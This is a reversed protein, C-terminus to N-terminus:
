AVSASRQFDLGGDRRRRIFIEAAVHGARDFRASALAGGFKAEFCRRRRGRAAGCVVCFSYNRIDADAVWGAAVRTNAAPDRDAAQLRSPTRVKRTIRTSVWSQGSSPT